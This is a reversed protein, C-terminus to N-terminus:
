ELHKVIQFKMGNDECLFVGEKKEGSNALTVSGRLEFTCQKDGEKETKFWKWDSFVGEWIDGNGLTITGEKVLLRRKNRIPDMTTFFKGKRVQGDYYEKCVLTGEILQM